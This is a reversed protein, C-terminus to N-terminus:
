ARACVCVRVRVCVGAAYTFQQYARLLAAVMAEVSTRLLLPSLTDRLNRWLTDCANGLVQLRPPSLFCSSAEDLEHSFAVEFDCDVACFM